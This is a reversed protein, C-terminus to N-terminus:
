ENDIENNQVNISISPVEQEEDNPLVYKIKVQEIILNQDLKDKKGFKDPNTRELYWSAAKWDDDFKNIVANVAGNSIKIHVEDLIGDIKERFEPYTDYWIKYTKYTIGAAEAANVKSNLNSLENVIISVRKPSYKLSKNQTAM